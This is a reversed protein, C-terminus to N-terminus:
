SRVGGALTFASGRSRSEGIRSVRIGALDNVPCKAECLGCGVCLAPDLHPRQLRLPRGDRATVTVDELWIAKPSTPCVEQCVICPVDLALPLCRGFDYFATGIRVPHESPPAWGKSEATLAAIAGTPCVQGCLTCSPECWGRRAVLVPTWLGELGAELLSPQLGSTPCANVCAGCRVCRALFEREDRAGPPRIAESGPASASGASARLLPLALVGVAASGVLTRRALDIGGAPAADPVLPRFRIAREPCAGVCNLCVHCESARHRGFPEDAGQCEAACLNCHTCRAADVQVRFLSTRSIWGLLAGLPCLARCWWRVIWRNAAFLALFIGGTLWAGIFIRPRFGGGGQVWDAAAFLGSGFSRAALSIPDLLGALLTGALAAAIVAALLAYKLSYHPRWRNAQAAPGRRLRRTAWGALQHLTGFPCAWGCFVRGLLVTLAVTALAWLLGVPIVWSSLLTGLAALPDLQFLWKLPLRRVGEETM